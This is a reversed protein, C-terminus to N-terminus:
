IPPFLTPETGLMISLSQPLQMKGHRRARFFGTNEYDKLSQEAICPNSSVGCVSRVILVIHHKVTRKKLKMALLIYTV